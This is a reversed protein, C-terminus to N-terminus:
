HIAALVQDAINQLVSRETTIKSAVRLGHISAVVFQALARNDKGVDVEGRAQAKRIRVALADELAKVSKAVIVSVDHDHPSLEVATNTLLCGRRLMDHAGIEVFAGFLAAMLDPFPADSDDTLVRFWPSTEIYRELAAAFVGQKNGFGAYLSGRHIGMAVVLDAISTAEYGNRWFVDIARDLVTERQYEKPRPM